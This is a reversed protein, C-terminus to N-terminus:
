IGFFRWEGSVLYFSIGFELLYTVLVLDGSNTLTDLWPECQGHASSHGNNFIERAILDHSIFNKMGRVAVAGKLEALIEPSVKSQLNSVAQSEKPGVNFATAVSTASEWDKDHCVRFTM